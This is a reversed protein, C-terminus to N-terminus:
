PREVELRRNVSDAIAKLDDPDSSIVIVSRMLAGEIVTADVVDTAGARGSLISRATNRCPSKRPVSICLSTTRRNLQIPPM